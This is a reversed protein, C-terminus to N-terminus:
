IYNSHRTGDWSDMKKIKIKKKKGTMLDYEPEQRTAVVKPQMQQQRPKSAQEQKNLITNLVDEIEKSINTLSNKYDLINSSHSQLVQKLQDHKSHVRPSNTKIEAKTIAKPAKPPLMSSKSQQLITKTHEVNIKLPKIKQTNYFKEYELNHRHIPPKQYVQPCIFEGSITGETATTEGGTMIYKGPDCM